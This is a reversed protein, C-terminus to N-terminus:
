IFNSTDIYLEESKLRSFDHAYKRRSEVLWQLEQLMSKDVTEAMPFIYKETEDTYRCVFEMDNVFGLSIM